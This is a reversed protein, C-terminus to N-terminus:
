INQENENEKQEENDDMNVMEEEGQEDNNEQSMKLEMDQNLNNGIGHNIGSGSINMNINNMNKINTGDGNENREFTYTGKMNSNKIEELPPQIKSPDPFQSIKELSSSVIQENEFKTEQLQNDRELIKKLEQDRGLLLQIESALKKNQSLLLVLHKKYAQILLNMKTNDCNISTNNQKLIDNDNNLDKIHNNRDEVLEKLHMNDEVLQNLCDTEKMLNEQVIAMEDKNGCIANNLNNIDNQLARITDNSMNLKQQCSAINAEKNRLELILNKNVNKENNLDNLLHINQDNKIRFVNEQDKNQNSLNNIQSNLEIIDQEQKEKIHSLNYIKREIEQKECNLRKMLEEQECIHDQLDQNDATINELEHFLNNNESYLKKNLAIRENLENLLHDNAKKLTIIDQNRKDVELENLDMEYQKKIELINALEDQLKYYKAQLNNFNGRNQDKEFVKVKLNSLIDQEQCPRRCPSCHNSDYEYTISNPSADRSM